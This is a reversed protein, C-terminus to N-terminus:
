RGEKIRVLAEKIEDPLNVKDKHRGIATWKMASFECAPLARKLLELLEDRQRELPEVRRQIIQAALHRSFTCACNPSTELACAEKAIERAIEEALSVSLSSASEEVIEIDDALIGVVLQGDPLTACLGRYHELDEYLNILKTEAPWDTGCAHIKRKFKAKKAIRM